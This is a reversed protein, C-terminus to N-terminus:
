GYTLCESGRMLEFYLTLFFWECLQALSVARSILEKLNLNVKYVIRWGYKRWTNDHRQILYTDGIKLSNEDNENDSDNTSGNQPSTVKSDTDKPSSNMNNEKAKTSGKASPKDANEAMKSEPGSTILLVSQVHVWCLLPYVVVVFVFCVKPHCRCSFTVPHFIFSIFDLLPSSLRLVM